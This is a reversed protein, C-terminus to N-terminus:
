KASFLQQKGLLELLNQCHTHQQTALRAYVHGFRGDHSLADYEQLLQLARSCCQRLLQQTTRSASPTLPTVSLSTATLACIGKLCAAQGQAQQFMQRLLSSDKGSFRRSLYLYDAAQQRIHTWLTSLGTGPVATDPLAEASQQVRQWVRAAQLHDIKEM